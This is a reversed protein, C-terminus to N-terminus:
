IERGKGGMYKIGAHMEKNRVVEKRKRVKRKIGYKEKWFGTSCAPRSGPGEELM